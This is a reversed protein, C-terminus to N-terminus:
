GATEQDVNYEYVVEYSTYSYIESFILVGIIAFMVLSVSFFHLQFIFYTFTYFTVTFLDNITSYSTFLFKVVFEDM